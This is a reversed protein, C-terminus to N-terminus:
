NAPQPRGESFRAWELTRIIQFQDNMTLIGTEGHISSKKLANLLALRPSLKYSDVGLAYLREYRQTETPFLTTLETRLPNSAALVWPTETFYIGNLDQDKQPNFQGSFVQSTSYVPIDAAFHYAFLPKIQRAFEPTAILVFADVDERHRPAIELSLNLLSRLKKAREASEKLLLAREIEASLNTQASYSIIEAIEGQHKKWSQNFAQEIRKGWDSQPTLLIVRRFHKTALQAAIQEVEHEPALGFQFFNAPPSTQGDLYNLALVRYNRDSLAAIESARSKELPGIVLDPKEHKLEQAIVSLDKTSNIFVLELANKATDQDQYYASLFGDRIANAASSLAGEFPLLIAIKKPRTEPLRSLLELAKPLKLTAPHSQWTALWLNLAQLQSDLSIENQKITIALQLWGKVDYHTTQDYLATLETLNTAALQSWIQEQMLTRTADDNLHNGKIRSITAKLPQELLEYAQAIDQYAQRQVPLPVHEYFGEKVQALYGALKATNALKLSAHIAILLYQEQLRQPLPPYDIKQLLALAKHYQQKQQHLDAAQMLIEAQQKPRKERQAQDLLIAIPDEVLPQTAPQTRPPTQTCGHLILALSLLATKVYRIRM